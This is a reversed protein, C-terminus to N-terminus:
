EAAAAPAVEGRIKRLAAMIAAHMSPTAAIIGGNLDPFFRGKSFDLPNGLADSICGGAETVIIAGAAHDWIKERYTSPPFRMFISADGRSLAGYKAQSDIRLSPLEIGVEESVAFSLQHNSHLKEFSEMYRVEEPPLTDNCHIRHTPLGAVDFLPGAFSGQGVRAAFITGVGRDDYAKCHEGDDENCDVETIAWHPLNPCGLVGMVVEGADLLGLCVAYQRMGVFGRTGDIPDLVWHRGVAGGESCGQDILEICDNPTLLPADAEEALTENVLDTIRRLMAAGEPARLDASDEEAVMSFTHHPFTRRLSWAVLVQAGYDAVTVPSSDEKEVKEGSKLTAQVANCLKSALRVAKVAAETEELLDSKASVPPADLSATASPIRPTANRGQPENKRAAAHIERSSSGLISSRHIGVSVARRLTSAINKRTLSSGVSTTRALSGSLAEMKQSILHAHQNLFSLLLSLLTAFLAILHM